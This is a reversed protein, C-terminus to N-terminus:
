TDSEADQKKWYETPNDRWLQEDETLFSRNDDVFDTLDQLDTSLSESVAYCARTIGYGECELKNKAWRIVSRVRRVVDLAPDYTGRGREVHILHNNTGVLPSPVPKGSKKWRYATTRTMKLATIIETIPYAAVGNQATIEPTLPPLDAPRSAADKEVRKKGLKGIAKKAREEDELQHLKWLLEANKMMSGIDM